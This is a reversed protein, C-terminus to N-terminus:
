RSDKRAGRSGTSGPERPALDLPLEATIQTGKGERSHVSITGGLADVRDTLGILGSGGSPDAGGVGDDGISLVLNGDRRELSVDIRSAQSHKAANALAESAVFYAAVEISEPLRVDMTIDLDVPIASRHALTQLAPGLGGRSLIAPHIGRSIERLDELAAVLGTAVSSLQAHLDDREPPLNAEMVRLDFGLSILRQQTGDHLDREIRRRTEDSAAVIRRRSAALESKSEANAIATAVLETFAAIRTEANEAWPEVGRTAAMLAGWLKGEVLIPAGVASRVRLSRALDTAEREWAEDYSYMRAQAGSEFIRAALNDGDLPFRSGVPLVPGDGSWSAITTATGDGPFVHLVALDAGLLLGVAQTVAMFVESPSPQQAVLVALRRLAAQEEALEALARRSEANAIATAVLDTFRELREETDPPLENRLNVSMAGWVRGDVVIPSAVQSLYGHQRLFDAVEGGVSALDDAGIRASRGTRLVHTPAFLDSPPWRSGLPVVEVSKSLGVVVLEPGPEFRGVVAVDFTAPDLGFVRDVEASVAAFIETPATGQAVLTAVRRLAAQEDALRALAKRAETNAIAAAVLGTFEALRAGTNEPLRETSSAVIAGWVGGAVVIPVGVSCRMGSSRVADAIEGRLDAYNDVRAPEAHERVLGLVNAGELSVRTGARFLPWQTPFTGCVTATDDSEYRAVAVSPADVVRGVEEAVVAFLEYPQVGEAVLTAIRRLAAQELTSEGSEKLGRSANGVVAGV